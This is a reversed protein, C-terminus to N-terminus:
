ATFPIGTGRAQRRMDLVRRWFRREGCRLVNRGKLAGDINTLGSHV